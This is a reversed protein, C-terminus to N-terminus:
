GYCQVVDREGLQLPVHTMTESVSWRGTARDLQRRVIRRRQLLDLLTHLQARLSPDPTWREILVQLRGGCPLGLRENQEPTVGSGLLGPAGIELGGSRLKELLDDAVCGGSLSGVVDGAGNCALLSGVPRPAAGVTAAITCLWCAEGANLWAAIQAFVQQDASQ